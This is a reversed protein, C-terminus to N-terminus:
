IVVDDARDLNVTDTPCPHQTSKSTTNGSGIRKREERINIIPMREIDLILIGHLDQGFALM